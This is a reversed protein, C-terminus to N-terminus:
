LTFNLICSVQQYEVAERTEDMIKEVDEISMLKFFEPNLLFAVHYVLQIVENMKKLCDNGVRLGEIM